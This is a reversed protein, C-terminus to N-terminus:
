AAVEAGSMPLLTPQFEGDGGRRNEIYIRNDTHVSITLKGDAGTTGTLERTTVDVDAGAALKTCHIM